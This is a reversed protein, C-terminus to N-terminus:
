KHNNDATVAKKKKKRQKGVEERIESSHLTRSPCNSDWRIHSIGNLVIVTLSLAKVHKVLVSFKNERPPLFLTLEPCSMEYKGRSHCCKLKEVNVVGVAFKQGIV